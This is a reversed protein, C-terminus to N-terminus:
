SEEELSFTVLCYTPNVTACNTSNALRFTKTIGTLQAKLLPFFASQYTVLRRIESGKLVSYEMESRARSCAYKKDLDRLTPRAVCCDV